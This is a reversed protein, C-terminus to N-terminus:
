NGPTDKIHSLMWEKVRQESFALGEAVHDKTFGYRNLQKALQKGDCPGLGLFACLELRRLRVNEGRGGNSQVLGMAELDDRSFEERQRDCMSASLLADRITKPSAHQIGRKKPPTNSNHQLPLFAHCAPGIEDELKNRITRGEHDPDMFIIVRDFKEVLAKLTRKGQAGVATTGLCVLVQANVAAAVAKWDSYGEVVILADLNLLDSQSDFPALHPLRRKKRKNGASGHPSM